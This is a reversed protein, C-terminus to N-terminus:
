QDACSPFAYIDLFDAICREQEFLLDVLEAEAFLVLSHNGLTATRCNATREQQADGLGRERGVGEDGGGGELLGRSNEGFGADVARDVAQAAELFVDDDSSEYWRTGAKGKM